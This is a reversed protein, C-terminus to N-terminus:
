ERIKASFDPSDRYVYALRNARARQKTGEFSDNTDLLGLDYALRDTYGPLLVRYSYPVRGPSIRNIHRAVNTTCNNTIANYFEPRATLGNARQLMDVFVERAQARTARARYIYVDDLRYNSRLVILDREDGVVYMLEYQNLLGKLPSYTEGKEKRIEVSIALYDQGEFGFSLFTHALAPMGAFPVMIFDVSQLKNLDYTKDYYHVEYNDTSHYACNRINHVTVRDGQFDAHALVAQDASWDRNNSPELSRCGAPLVCVGLLAARAALGLPGACRPGPTTSRLAFQRNARVINWDTWGHTKLAFFSARSLPNARKL